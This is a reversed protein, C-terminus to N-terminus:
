RSGGKIARWVREPTCPMDVHHVGLPSLADVVANQVAPTSGITGSEGIGKAGLPNATTPTEMTVLEFSPLETPSVIAYDAFNATVPNGEDDYQVEELLAQAAGQALGGHIQGELLMPNLIRGADDCAVMRRLVPKGTETDVEVVAVHAGFPFTTSSAQFDFSAQLAAVNPDRQKAFAVVEDWGRAIAPTGAVHFRGQGVDLVVDDVSAELLEAALSRAEDVVLQSAGLVASGGVQLSRSGMTGGGRPVRDTDGWVVSIRDMPIGTTDSAIMAFSTQHGQGHPSSGTYVTASGDDHVEISAYETGATPGATVEVYTSVGIGLANTDGAARRRAQEVRLEDYGAARLVRDLAGVYDGCDYTTGVPTTHPESFPPVLNRRRVEVADMGIEAAFLDIAREIAAAAEPRGAGRYAIVPATNTVVASTNCEIKPIAYVGAAMMRTLFPLFAGVAPYAGADQLISLRYAEVTGDRRGGIEVLQIQARGHGMAVMNESRTETWRVPRGLRRALWPLLAEEPTPGIKAGFGGGVDPAICRVQEAALGYAGAVLDRAMHAGQTSMWFQLRGDDMWAAAAGRVELPCAAVRRNVIKQTVVVECDDFLDDTRGFAFEIACNTGAAPFLLEADEAAAEPDVVAPLPSYDVYVLELADAAIAASEAVVAVIPEGVFRVRDTALFPRAMEANIGPMGAPMTGLDVDAAAFVGLVGPLKEADSTDVTITAHAVTSRVYAVIGAGALLPDDLDALYRGGETLFRPDEVRLVRTGMVSM